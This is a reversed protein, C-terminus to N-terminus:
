SRWRTMMAMQIKLAEWLSDVRQLTLPRRQVAASAERARAATWLQPSQLWKRIRSKAQVARSSSHFMCRLRTESKPSMNCNSLSDRTGLLARMGTFRASVVAVHYLAGGGRPLFALLADAADRRLSPLAGLQKHLARVHEAAAPAERLLLAAARVGSASTDNCTLARILPWAFDSDLTGQQLLSRALPAVGRAVRLSTGDSECHTPRQEQASHACGDHQQKSTIAGGGDPVGTNQSVIPTRSESHLPSVDGGARHQDVSGFVVSMLVSAAQIKGAAAVRRKMAALCTTTM